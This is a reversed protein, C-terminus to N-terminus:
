RNAGNMEAEEIDATLIQALKFAEDAGAEGNLAVRLFINRAQIMELYDLSM